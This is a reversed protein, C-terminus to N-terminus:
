KTKVKGLLLHVLMAFFFALFFTAFFFFAVLFFRLYRKFFKEQTRV